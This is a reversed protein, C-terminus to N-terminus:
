GCRGQAHDLGPMAIVGVDLELDAVEDVLGERV